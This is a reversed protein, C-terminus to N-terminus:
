PFRFVEKLTLAVSARIGAIDKQSFSLPLNRAECTAVGIAFAGCDVTNEQKPSTTNELTWTNPNNRHDDAGKLSALYMAFLRGKTLLSRGKRGLSDCYSVRLRPINM